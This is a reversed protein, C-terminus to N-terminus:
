GKLMKTRWNELLTTVDPMEGCAGSRGFNSEEQGYEVYGPVKTDTIEVGYGEETASEELPSDDMCPLEIGTEEVSPTEHLDFTEDVYEKLEDHGSPNIDGQVFLFDGVNEESKLNNIGIESEVKSKVKPTPKGAHKDKKHSTLMRRFQFREACISCEWRPNTGIECSKVHNRLSSELAFTLKCNKCERGAENQNQVEQKFAESTEELVEEFDQPPIEREPSEQLGM